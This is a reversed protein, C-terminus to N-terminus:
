KQMWNNHGFMIGLFANSKEHTTAICFGFSFAVHGDRIIDGGITEGVVSNRERGEIIDKELGFWVVRTIEAPVM